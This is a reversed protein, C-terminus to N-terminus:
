DLIRPGSASETFLKRKLIGKVGGERPPAEGGGQRAGGEPTAGVTVVPSYAAHRGAAPGARAEAAAFTGFESKPRPVFKFGGRVARSTVSCKPQPTSVAAAATPQATSTAATPSTANTTTVMTAEASSSTAFMAAAGSFLSRYQSTASTTTALEEQEDPWTVRKKAPRQDPAGRARLETVERALDELQREYHGKMAEMKKRYIEVSSPKAQTATKQAVALQVKVMEVKEAHEVEVKTKDEKLLKIEDELKQKEREGQKLMSALEAEHAQKFFAEMEEMRRREEERDRERDEEVRGQLVGMDRLHRQNLRAVEEGKEQLGKQLSDVDEVLEAVKRKYIPIAGVVTEITDFVESKEEAERRATALAALALDRQEEMDRLQRGLAAM